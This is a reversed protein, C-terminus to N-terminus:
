MSYDWFHSCLRWLGHKERNELQMTNYLTLPWFPQCWVVYCVWAPGWSGAGPGCTKRSGSPRSPDGNASCEGTRRPPTKSTMAILRTRSPIPLAPKRGLFHCQFMIFGDGLNLQDWVGLIAKWISKEAEQHLVGRFLPPISRIQDSWLVCSVKAWPHTTPLAFALAFSLAESARPATPHFFPGTMGENRLRKDMDQGTIRFWEWAAQKISIHTILWIGEPLKAYSHFM